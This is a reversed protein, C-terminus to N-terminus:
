DLQIRLFLNIGNPERDISLQDPRFGAQQALMYLEEESRHMLYWDGFIEMYARNPNYIGFNGIVIEAKKNCFGAMKKLAAVFLKDNFYDFLGASWIVDFKQDTQFRFFNKQHFLIKKSYDKCLESAFDIANQDMEVCTTFLKDQDKCENLFEYLDRAPGSAINLLQIKKGSKVKEHMLNKFFQKRNRVAQVVPLQHFYQDWAKYNPHSSTHYSYIKDIICFDGAYGYPKIFSHGQITNELFERDFVERIQSIEPESIDSSYLTNFLHELIPYQEKNPGGNEIFYHLITSKGSVRPEQVPIIFKDILVM